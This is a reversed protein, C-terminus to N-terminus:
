IALPPPHDEAEAGLTPEDAVTIYWCMGAGKPPSLSVRVARGAHKKIGDVGGAVVIKARYVLDGMNNGFEVTTKGFSPEHGGCIWSLGEAVKAAVEDFSAAGETGAVDASEMKRSGGLFKSVLQGAAGPVILKRRSMNNNGVTIPVLPPALPPPTSEDSGEASTPNMSAFVRMLDDECDYARVFLPVRGQESLCFPTLSLSLSHSCSANYARVVAGVAAEQVDLYWFRPKAGDEKGRPKAVALRVFVGDRSARGLIRVKGEDEERRLIAYIGEANDAVILANHTDGANKANSSLYDVLKGSAIGRALEARSDADRLLKHVGDQARM